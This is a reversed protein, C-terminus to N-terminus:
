RGDLADLAYILLSAVTLVFSAPSSGTFLFRYIPVRVKRVMATNILCGVFLVYGHRKLLLIFTNQAEM